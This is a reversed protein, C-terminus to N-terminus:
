QCVSKYLTEDISGPAFFNWERKMEESFLVAGERSCDQVSLFHYMKGPCNIEWLTVSYSVNEYHEGYEIQMRLSDNKTYVTKTWVRIVNESPRKISGADYFFEGYDTKGYEKWDVGWAEPHGAILLGFFGIMAVSLKIPFM